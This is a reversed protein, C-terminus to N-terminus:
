LDIGAPGLGADLQAVEADTFQQVAAHNDAFPSAEPELELRPETADPPLGADEWVECVYRPM